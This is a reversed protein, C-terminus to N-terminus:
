QFFLHISQGFLNCYLLYIIIILIKVILVVIVPLNQM